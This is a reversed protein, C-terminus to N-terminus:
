ILYSHKAFLSIDSATSLQLFEHSFADDNEDAVVLRGVVIWGIRICRHPLVRREQIVEALVAVSQHTHNIDVVVLLPEEAIIDVHLIDHPHAERRGHGIEGCLHADRLGGRHGPKNLNAAAHRHRVSRHMEQRWVAEVRLYLNHVQQPNMRALLLLFGRQLQDLRHHLHAGRLLRLLNLGDLLGAIHAESHM